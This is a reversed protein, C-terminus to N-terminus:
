SILIAEVAQDCDLFAQKISEIDDPLADLWHAVDGYPDSDVTLASVGEKIADAFSPAEVQAIKLTGDFLSHYAVAYKM